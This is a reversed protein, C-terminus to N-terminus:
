RSVSLSSIFGIMAALPNVQEPLFVDLTQGTALHGEYAEIWLRGKLFVQFLTNQTNWLPPYFHCIAIHGDVDGLTHFSSSNEPLPQGNRQVLSAPSAVVVIPCSNPFDGPLYVRLAYNKDNNTQLKVEVKASHHPSIWTVRGPFYSDLIQREIALRRIQDPSWPM